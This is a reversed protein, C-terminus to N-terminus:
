EGNRASCLAERAKPRTVHSCVRQPSYPSYSTCSGSFAKLDLLDELDREQQQNLSVGLHRSQRLWCPGQPPRPFPLGKYGLLSVPAQAPFRRSLLSFYVLRM